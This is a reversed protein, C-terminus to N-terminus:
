FILKAGFQIVRQFATASTTSLGAFAGSINTKDLFQPSGPTGYGPLNQASGTFQSTGGKGLTYSPHNFANLMEVRFQLERGEGWFPTNKLLALNWNNIGPTIFTNRGLNSEGGVGPRIYMANPNQSAYGVVNGNGGCAAASAGISTATGNWCVFNVDSGVNKTGSPNFFATDGATDGDGNVDRQALVTIPQGSEAMYTGNLQWGNLLKSVAGTGGYAPLNYVWSAVFKHAHHLGSLAKNSFLNYMDKPRRPNLFSTFLDNEILDMTKSWTYSTDLTLGRSLRRQAIVSAGHYWSHGAPDFMTLVGSFGYPALLRVVNTNFAALTPAGAFNAGLAAASNTFVPLRVPNPAAPNKWRQVPLHISHNGVYRVEFMWDEFQERQISLSWTYTEPSVEDPVYNGSSARATYRNILTGPPLARLLGGNALFGRTSHRIDATRPNTGAPVMSCWAPAPVLVCANSERNEAQRQPPLQLLSLNGYYVDHAIGVGARLSTKGDGFIDWALGLRPAFNNRDANPRKFLLQEGVHFLIAQQHQASLTDFIKRGLLPSNAAVLDTTYVEDRVSVLNAIGNLDQLSQDRGTETFEYRIGYDLTVRPHVKWNDQVFGYYATRNGVFDGSGVGRISVISPFRDRAFEDLDSYGFEGRARPLFGSKSIINRLEAGFKLTHAGFLVSTTNTFQYINDGGGQPYNSQPGIFLSQSNINYNGFVDTTGPAAPLDVPRSEIGRNWGARFENVIRPGVTFVDSFVARKTDYAADSNFRDVPLTGAVIFRNRSYNFRGSLRHRATQYDSSILYLHTRDFNPTTASFQGLPITVRAGTAENLVTTTTTQTTAVPVHAGIIDVAAKSIGTGAAGALGQLTSLGAATPVLIIGSATGAQTLNQYEYSGFVFLKDKIIPGGAQGGFRNWDYRPKATGPPTVARTINDLSNTHRNQSYWWARGHLENTGTRTTTIFQGATSHGYEASFQNTLLTFEGVADAIVPTLQGTTSPDNNDVGDVVFNNNRPRNGGISGGEGAVGGSMTTTGAALIAFSTPDGDLAANPRDAVNRTSFGQLQASSTQVRQEGITVSVEETIAGIELRALVDSVVNARVQVNERTYRKFGQMEVSVTYTSVLLNPFDFSGTSSTLQNRTEGTEVNTITVNARPILAGSPDQVNGRITGQFGQMTGPAAAVLPMAVLVVLLVSVWIKETSM